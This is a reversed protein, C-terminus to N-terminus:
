TATRSCTYFSNLTLRGKRPDDSLADPHRLDPSHFLSGNYFIIRNWKAPVTCVREFYDNSDLLYGPAITTKALVEDRSASGVLRMLAETDPIDRKPVYFSTGGLRVDDFLYLVSAAAMQTDPAGLRDRHCLWQIPSLSDAQLTAMSLRSHLDLTRRAGLKRRIHLRFFDELMASIREPLALEIGPYANHAAAAFEDHHAEAYELWSEPYLLADDVVYCAHEQTISVVSFRANPNFM